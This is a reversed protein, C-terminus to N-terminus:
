DYESRAGESQILKTEYHKMMEEHATILPNVPLRRLAAAFCTTALITCSQCIRATRKWLICGSYDVTFYMTATAISIGRAYQASSSNRDETTLLTTQAHAM